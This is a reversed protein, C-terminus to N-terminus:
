GCTARRVAWSRGGGACLKKLKSPSPAGEGPDVDMCCRGDASRSLATVEFGHAALRECIPLGMKGLGIWGIRPKNRAAATTM